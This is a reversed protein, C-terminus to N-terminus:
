IKYERYMICWGICCLPLRVFVMLVLLDMESILFSLRIYGCM